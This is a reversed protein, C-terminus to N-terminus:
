DRNKLWQLVVTSPLKGGNYQLVAVQGDALGPQFSATRVYKDNLLFLHLNVGGTRLM